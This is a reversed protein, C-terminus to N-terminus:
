NKTSTENEAPSNVSYSAARSENWNKLSALTASLGALTSSIGSM